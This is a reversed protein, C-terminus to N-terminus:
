AEAKGPWVDMTIAECDCQRRPHAHVPCAADHITVRDGENGVADVIARIKAAAVLSPERRPVRVRKRRPPV